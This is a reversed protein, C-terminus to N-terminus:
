SSRRARKARRVYHSDNFQRNIKKYHKESFKYWLKNRGLQSIINSSTSSKSPGSSGTTGSSSIFPKVGIIYEIWDLKGKGYCKTCIGNRQVLTGNSIDVAEHRVFGVGNCKNCKILEVDHDM